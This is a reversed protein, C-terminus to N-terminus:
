RHVRREWRWRCWCRTTRCATWSRCCSSSSGSRHSWPQPRASQSRAPRSPPRQRQLLLSPATSARMSYRPISKQSRHVIIAARAPTRGNLLTHAPLEKSTSHAPTPELYSVCFYREQPSGPLNFNEVLARALNVEREWCAAEWGMRPAEIAWDNGAAGWGLRRQDRWWRVSREIEHEQVRSRM